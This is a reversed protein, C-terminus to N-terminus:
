RNNILTYVRDHLLRLSHEIRQNTAFMSEWVFPSHLRGLRKEHGDHEEEPHHNFDTAQAAVEECTEQEHTERHMSPHFPAHFPPPSDGASAVDSYPPAVIMPCVLLLSLTLQSIKMEFVCLVM